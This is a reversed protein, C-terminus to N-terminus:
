PLGYHPRAHERQKQEPWATSSCCLAKIIRQRTAKAEQRHRSASDALQAWQNRPRPSGETETVGARRGSPATHAASQPVVTAARPATRQPAQATRHLGCHRSLHVKSLVAGPRWQQVVEAQRPFARPALVGASHGSQCHALSAAPPACAALVGKFHGRRLDGFARPAPASVKGKPRCTQSPRRPCTAPPAVGAELAVGGSRGQSGPSKTFGTLILGANTPIPAWTCKLRDRCEPRVPVPSGANLSVWRWLRGLLLDRSEPSAQARQGGAAGVPKQGRTERPKRSGREGGAPRPM